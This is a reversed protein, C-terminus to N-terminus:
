ERKRTRAVLVNWLADASRDWTWDQAALAGAQAVQLRLAPQSYLQVILAALVGAGEPEPLVFGEQKDRIRESVGAFVSTIVPLGCAMAEAVPLGFSDERSPSVYLDAAAYFDIVDTQPPEWVCREAVGLRDAMARFPAVNDRGVVLLRLPLASAEAMAALITPLGKVRWDNGILLLVFDTDHFNRRRRAESRRSARAAASFHVVDVGNPIVVAHHQFYKQVLNATRQSVTALSVRPQRYVFRELWTLLFYYARRHLARLLSAGDRETPNAARSLERLQCFLAHVIVVDADLCNIGPSLVLDVAPRGLLAHSARICGNAILWWLFRILLPGPISPVKHWFLAGAEAHLGARPTQVALDSVRQSYLHIECHYSRALRDLLEALARETGHSRDVFPSVVALRLDAFGDTTPSHRPM